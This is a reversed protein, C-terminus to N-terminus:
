EFPDFSKDDGKSIRPAHSPNHKRVGPSAWACKKQSMTSRLEGSTSANRLSVGVGPPGSNRLKGRLGDGPRDDLRKGLLSLRNLRFGVLLPADLMSQQSFVARCVKAFPKFFRGSNKVPLWIVLDVAVGSAGTRRMSDIGSAPELRM